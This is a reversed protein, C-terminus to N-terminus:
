ERYEALLLLGHNLFSPIEIGQPGLELGPSSLQLQLLASPETLRFFGAIGGPNRTGAAVSTILGALSMFARRVSRDSSLCGSALTEERQLLHFAFVYHM